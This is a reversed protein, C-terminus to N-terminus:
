SVASWGSAPALSAMSAAKARQDASPTHSTEPCLLKRSRQRMSAVAAARSPSNRTRMTRPLTGAVGEADGQLRDVDVAEVGLQVVGGLAAVLDAHADLDVLEAARDGVPQARMVGAVHIVGGPLGDGVMHAHRGFVDQVAEDDIAGLLQAAHGPHVGGHALHVVEVAVGFAAMMALRTPALLIPKKVLGSPSM